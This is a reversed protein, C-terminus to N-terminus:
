FRLSLEEQLGHEEKGVEFRVVARNAQCRWSVRTRSSKKKGVVTARENKWRSRRGGKPFEEIQDPGLGFHSALIVLVTARNKFCERISENWRHFGSDSGTSSCNTPFFELWPRNRRLVRRFRCLTPVGFGLMLTPPRPLLDPGIVM